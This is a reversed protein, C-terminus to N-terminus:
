HQDILKGAELDFSLDVPIKQELFVLFAGEDVLLIDIVTQKLMM